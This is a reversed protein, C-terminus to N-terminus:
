RVPREVRCRIARLFLGVYLAPAREAPQPYLEPTVDRGMADGFLAALLMAGAAHAEENRGGPCGNADDGVSTAARRERTGEAEVFGHEYLARMYRKLEPGVTGAARGLCPAMDPKEEVDCMMQRILGRRARLDDLLLGCWATLEAPPDAPVDPLRPGDPAPAGAQRVAEDILVAKSGFLRFITVENVGAEEAIRRTTAGRFGCSAYVRAAAEILRDRSQSHTAGTGTITPGTTPGQEDSQM